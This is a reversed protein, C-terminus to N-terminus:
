EKPPHLHAEFADLRATVHAFDDERMTHEGFRVQYFANVVLPPVDAIAESGSGHGALFISARRAFELPTEAPPRELGYEALLVVLRRYFQIGVMGPSDDLKAGAFRRIVRGVVWTLLRAFGALLLLAGFSVLFGRFSFFSEMSPFHLLARLGDYMISFGRQAEKILERIPGYLFRNQRDANFGVVYFIWFYRILDTIQYFHTAM